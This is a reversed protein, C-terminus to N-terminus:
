PFSFNVLALGPGNGNPQVEGNDADQALFRGLQSVQLQGNLYFEFVFNAGPEGCASFLDAKALYLGAPPLTQWIFMEQRRGDPICSALSDRDLIATGPLTGGDPDTGQSRPHKRDLQTGDPEVIQLDVDANTDWTLRAVAAAAPISPQFQLILPEARVGHHGDRDIAVIKLPHPGPPLDRGFDLVADFKITGPNEVDLVTTPVVWYGTGLDDFRIAAATATPGSNGSLKHGAEGQFVARTPTTRLPTAPGDTGELLEGRFFQAPITKTQGVPAYSVHFPEDLGSPASESVDGCAALLVVFALCPLGLRM